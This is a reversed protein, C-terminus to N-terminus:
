ICASPKLDDTVGFIFKDIRFGIDCCKKFTVYVRALPNVNSNLRARQGVFYILAVLQRKHESVQPIGYGIRLRPEPLFAVPAAIGTNVRM